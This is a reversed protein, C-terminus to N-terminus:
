RRAGMERRTEKEIDRKKLSERKDVTKKGKALGISVKAIGRPSFYLELPVVTLGKERVRTALRVIQQRHMLLKRRRRPDYDIIHTSQQAYPAIHVGELFAEDRWFRVMGDTLNADGNRLSKVEYGALMMGAEFTELIAYDHFARRNTTVTKKEM